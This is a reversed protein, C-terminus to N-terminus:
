TVNQTMYCELRTVDPGHGMGPETVYKVPQETKLYPGAFMGQM